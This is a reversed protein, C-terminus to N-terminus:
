IKQYYPKGRFMCMGNIKLDQGFVERLQECMSELTVGTTIVDDVITISKYPTLDFSSNVMFNDKSISKREDRDRLSQHDYTNKRRVLNESSDLNFKKAVSKSIDLTQNFGRERLRNNAIPVNTLLTDKLSDSFVSHSVSEIFFESLTKSMDYVYRYKYKKLLDSTLSNYEWSVFANDLYGKSKQAICKQDICKKHTKYNPSIRRCLYCEPLNRKFLKKCRNCLYTGKRSCIICSKPFLSDLINAM